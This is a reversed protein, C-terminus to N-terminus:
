KVIDRTMTKRKKNNRSTIFNQFITTKVSPSRIPVLSPTSCFNPSFSTLHKCFNINQSYTDWQSHEYFVEQNNQCKAKKKNIKNKLKLWKLREFLAAKYPIEFCKSVEFNWVFSLYKFKVAFVSRGLM